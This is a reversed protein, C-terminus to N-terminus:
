CLMKGTVSVFMRDMRRSWSVESWFASGFARTRQAVQRETPRCLVGRRGV